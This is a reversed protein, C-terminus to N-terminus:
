REWVMLPHSGYFAVTSPVCVGLGSYFLFGVTSLRRSSNRQQLGRRLRLSPSLMATEAWSPHEQPSEIARGHSRFQVLVSGAQFFFMQVSCNSFSSSFTSSTSTLEMETYSWASLFDDMLMACSKSWLHLCLLFHLFFFFFCLLHKRYKIMENRIFFLFWSINCPIKISNFQGTFRSEEWTTRLCM